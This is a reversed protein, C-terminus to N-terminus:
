NYIEGGFSAFSKVKIKEIIAEIESQTVGPHVVETEGWSIGVDGECGIPLEMFKFRELPYNNLTDYAISIVEAAKEIPCSLEISDFVTCTSKAGIRKVRENLEAFTVLGITSTTSQINVNQGNRLSGNYAATSKFCDYTGYQRKRQGLPTLTMQNYIAFKHSNDIYDKVRPFAKFYLAILSEAAEKSLNLQMAIGAVSSGYLISFTLIKALQRAEKYERFKPHSTDGLVGIFDAYPIGRMASASFSHFDLGDAIAKLMGPDKSINALIKVEASSFDFSIFVDGEDVTYCTRINYGHKNRPLQTLNPDSGTIRFSSTGFQNYSPHIRGDQKVFDSVYSRIFTNHASSIDRRVAMDALWQLAPDKAIYKGGVPDLGALTLIAAGDTAPEGSKTFNPPTFGKEGYLFEAIKAGSNLDVEKGIKSFIKEDLEAIQKVMKKSIWANRPVSYKMGNLELDILFEQAPIELQTFSEIIAPAKSKFENGKLDLDTIPESKSILPFQKRLLETTAICDIGAYINLTDYDFDEYSVSIEPKESAEEKSKIEESTELKEEPFALDFISTQTQEM